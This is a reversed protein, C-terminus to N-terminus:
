PVAPTNNARVQSGGQKETMSMGALLGRKTSPPRLGFDYERAALGSEYRAALEPAHRLAPVIAYTMSVPCCHGADTAGWVYFGAARAVHAGPRPDPWPAAHLGHGVAVAMLSHWASHFEVEDIRTGFRDHTRLVPPHENAQRGWEQAQASGALCGLERLSGGAWGAGERRLADLMAPDAAVDYGALAPPQNFVEHTSTM